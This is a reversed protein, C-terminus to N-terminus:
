STYGISVAFIDAYMYIKHLLITRKQVVKALLPLANNGIKKVFFQPCNLNEQQRM